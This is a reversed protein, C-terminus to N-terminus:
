KNLFANFVLGVTATGFIGAIGFLVKWVFDFRQNNTAIHQDFLDKDAKKELDSKLNSISKDIQDDIHKYLDKVRNIERDEMSELKKTIEVRFDALLKYLDKIDVVTESM